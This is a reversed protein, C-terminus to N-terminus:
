KNNSGYQQYENFTSLAIGGNGDGSTVHMLQTLAAQNGRGAARAM